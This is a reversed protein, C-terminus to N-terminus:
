AYAARPNRPVPGDKHQDVSKREALWARIESELWRKGRPGIRIPEPFSGNRVLRYITSRSLGTEATIEKCTLLRDLRRDIM